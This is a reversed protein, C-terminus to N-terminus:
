CDIHLHIDGLMLKCVAYQSRTPQPIMCDELFIGLMESYRLQRFSGPQYGGMLSCLARVWFIVIYIKLAISVEFSMEESVVCVEAECVPVWHCARGTSPICFHPLPARGPDEENFASGTVDEPVQSLLEEM